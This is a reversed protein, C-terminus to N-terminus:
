TLRHLPLAHVAIIFCACEPILGSFPASSTNVVVSILVIDAIDAPLHLLYIIGELPLTAGQLSTLALPIHILRLPRHTMLMSIRM